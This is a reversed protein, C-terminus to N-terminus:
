ARHPNFINRETILRFASFERHPGNSSSQPAANTDAAHAAYLQLFLGGVAVCIFWAGALRFHAHGRSARTAQNVPRMPTQDVVSQSSCAPYGPLPRAAAKTGKAISLRDTARKMPSASAPKPAPWKGPSGSC